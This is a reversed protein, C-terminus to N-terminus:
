ENDSDEVDIDSLMTGCFTCFQVPEVSETTVTFYSECQSCEINYEKDRSFM